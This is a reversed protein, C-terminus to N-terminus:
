QPAKNNNINSPKKKLDVYYFSALSLNNWLWKDETLAKSITYRWISISELRKIMNCWLKLAYTIYKFWSITYGMFIPCEFIFTYFWWWTYKFDSAPEMKQSIGLTYEIVKILKDANTPKHTRTSSDRISKTAFTTPKRHTERCHGTYIASRWM